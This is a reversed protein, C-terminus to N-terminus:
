ADDGITALSESIAKTQVFSSFLFTAGSRPTSEAWITGGHAEVIGRAIAMGM